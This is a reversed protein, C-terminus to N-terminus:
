IFLSQKNLEKEKSIRKAWGLQAPLTYLRQNGLEPWIFNLGPIVVKVTVLPSYARTTDKVLVDFGLKKAIELCYIIDDKLDPHRIKKYESFSKLKIQHDPLLFYSETMEQFQFTESRGNGIAILQCLETLARNCAIAIDLHAGFGFRFEHTTKNNGIAAVVPINFDHTLDLVWYEWDKGITKEVKLLNKKSIEELHIGPRSLKNYWWIAVADREILELFGQLIAEELTNGAACGNSNFRIHSEDELPTNTYCFTLPLYIYENTILSTAMTWHMKKNTPLVTVSMKNDPNALFGGLQHTSYQKLQSPLYSKKDLQSVCAYICDENGDYLVNHREISEAIASMQSQEDTIGKGLSYQIFNDRKLHTSISPTKSFSTRYIKIGDKPNSICDLSHIIGTFPSIFPKMKELLKKMTVTRYGNEEINCKFQSQITIPTKSDSTCFHTKCKIHPVIYHHATKKTFLNFSIFGSFCHEHDPNEILKILQESNKLLIEGSFYCFSLSQNYTLQHAWKKIPQNRKLQGALCAYCHSSDQNADMLPGLYIERGTLKVLLWSLNKKNMESDIDALRPDLYDDTFVITDISKKSIVEIFFNFPEIDQIASLIILQVGTIHQIQRKNQLSTAIYNNDNERILIGQEILRHIIFTAYVEDKFNGLSDMKESLFRTVLEFDNLSISYEQEESIFHYQHNDLIIPSFKGNWYVRQDFFYLNPHTIPAFKKTNFDLEVINYPLENKNTRKFKLEEEPYEKWDFHFHDNKSSVQYSDSIAQIEDPNRFGSKFLIKKQNNGGFGTNYYHYNPHCYDFLMKAQTNHKGLLTSINLLLKKIETQQLYPSVGEMMIYIQGPDNKLTERLWDGSIIDDYGKNEINIGDPVLSNRIEIAEKQDINIWKSKTETLINNLRNSRTCLGCGLNIIVQEQNQHLHDLVINDFKKTRSAIAFILNKDAKSLPLKTTINNKIEISFEDSFNLEPYYISALARAHMTYFMSYSEINLSEIKEDLYTM